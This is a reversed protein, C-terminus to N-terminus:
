STESSGESMLVCTTAPQEECTEAAEEAAAATEKATPREDSVGDPFAREEHLKAYYNPTILADTGELPKDAFACIVAAHGAESGVYPSGETITLPVYALEAIVQQGFAERLKIQLGTSEYRPVVSKRIVSVDAGSDVVVDSPQVSFKLTVKALRHQKPQTDQGVKNTTAVTSEFAPGM